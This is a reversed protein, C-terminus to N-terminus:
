VRVRVVIIGQKAKYGLARARDLRTPKSIRIVKVQRRWRIMRERLVRGFEGAYPRKWQLSIYHYASKAM